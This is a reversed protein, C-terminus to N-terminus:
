AKYQCYHHHRTLSEAAAPYVGQQWDPLTWLGGDQVLTYM